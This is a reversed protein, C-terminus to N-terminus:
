LKKRWRRRQVIQFMIPLVHFQEDDKQRSHRDEPRHLTVVATVGGVMNTTDKHAHACFDCVCTIGSFPRKDGKGIRCDAAVESFLCMNNSSDPALDYHIPTVKDTIKECIKVLDGEASSETLKFKHVDNSRCFKCTNHIM